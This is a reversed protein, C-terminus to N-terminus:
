YSFLSITNNLEPTLFGAYTGDVATSDFSSYLRSQVGNGRAIVGM